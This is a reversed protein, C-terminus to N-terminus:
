KMEGEENFDYENIDILEEIAEDSMQYEYEAELDKYIMRMLDKCWDKFEETAETSPYPHQDPEFTVTGEHYYRGHQRLSADVVIPHEYDLDADYDIDTAELLKYLGRVKEPYELIEKARAESTYGPVEDLQMWNVSWQGEFCAGDGQSWFGSWHIKVDCFGLKSLLTKWDDIVPESWFALGERMEDRAKDKASEDLEHYKM